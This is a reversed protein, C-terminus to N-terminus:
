NNLKYVTLLESKTVPTYDSKIALFVNRLEQLRGSASDREDKGVSEDYLVLWPDLFQDAAVENGIFIYQPKLRKIRLVTDNVEKNTILFWQMEFFPMLSYREALLPLINDFVSIIFVGKGDAGTGSYKRLIEISDSLPEPDITSIIRARNFEWSYVKHTEFIKSYTKKQRYYFEGANVTVHIFAALIVTILTTKLLKYKFFNINGVIKTMVLLQLAMIPFLPWFHNTLGSWFYYVLLAQFYLFLFVFLYKLPTRDNKKWLLFAYSLAANTMIIAVFQRDPPFSFYGKLFYGFVSDTAVPLFLRSFILPFFVAVPLIAILQMRKVGSYNELYFVALSIAAALIGFLGFQQNLFVGVIGAGLALILDSLKRSNFYKFLLFILSLDFFHILPNIGPAILFGDYGLSFFSLALALMSFLTFLGSRFLYISIFFYILWYLVYFIHCKFYNQVSLGGFFEMTWKYVFSFGLGYQFYIESPPKGNLYENVPNLVNGIHNFVGRNSLQYFYERSNDRILKEHLSPEITAGIDGINFYVDNIKQTSPLPLYENLVQVPGKILSFAEFGMLGLLLISLILLMRPIIISIKKFNIFSILLLVISVATQTNLNDSSRNVLIAFLLTVLLILYKSHFSVRRCIFSKFSYTNTRLKLYFYVFCLLMVLSSVLYNVLPAKVPNFFIRTWANFEPFTKAIFLPKITEVLNWTTLGAAMCMNFIQAYFLIIHLFKTSMWKKLADCFMKISFM